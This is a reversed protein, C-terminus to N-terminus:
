KVNNTRQEHKLRIRQSKRCVKCARDLGDNEGVSRSFNETTGCVFHKGLTCYKMPVDDNVQVSVAPPPTPRLGHQDAEIRVDNIKIQLKM